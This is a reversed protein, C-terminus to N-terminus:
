QSANVPLRPPAEFQGERRFRWLYTPIIAEAPAPEIDLDALTLANPAVVNDRRLLRVQDRTLLPKPLLGLFSAKLMAISWPVPVLLRRRNTEELVLQMLERFTYIRPGGLEYARGATTAGGLCRAIASAVDCVYVPQFRTRGGGILPLAPSIRALAAFLNFFRDEPGFVMSPRLITAAPFANRTRAEGEAKTRAYVAEAQADAGIASIHILAGAGEARATEAIAAAADAHLTQFRQRRTESLIGVLNVVADAGKLARAVSERDAIDTRVIQILGVHAMPLLFNALHPYRVGVRIRHGARALARVTYRGVFGSGGFVTVLMTM